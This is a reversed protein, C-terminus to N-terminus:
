FHEEIVRVLHDGTLPQQVFDPSEVGKWCRPRDIRKKQAEAVLNFDVRPTGRVEYRYM